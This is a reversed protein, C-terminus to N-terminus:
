GGLAQNWECFNRELRSGFSRIFDALNVEESPLAKIVAPDTVHWYMVPMTSGCKKGDSRRAPPCVVNDLNSM